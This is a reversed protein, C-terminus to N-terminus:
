KTIEWLGLFAIIPFTILTKPTYLAQTQVTESTWSAWAALSSKNGAACCEANTSANLMQLKHKKQRFPSLSPQSQLLCASRWEPMVLRPMATQCFCPWVLWAAVCCNMMMMMMMMMMMVMMKMLVLLMLLYWYCGACKDADADADTHDAHSLGSEWAWLKPECGNRELWTASYYFLMNTRTAPNATSKYISNWSGFRHCRMADPHIPMKQKKRECCIRWLKDAAKVCRPVLVHGDWLGHALAFHQHLLVFFM